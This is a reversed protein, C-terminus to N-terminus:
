DTLIHIFWIRFLMKTHMEGPFLLTLCNGAKMLPRGREASQILLAERKESRTPFDM